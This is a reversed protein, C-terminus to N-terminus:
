SKVSKVHKKLKKIAWDYHSATASVCYSGLTTTGTWSFFKKTFLEENSFTEITKMVVEHSEKLMKQATDLSTKQHKEWFEDNMGAITQFTYPAPLFSQTVGNQNSEIWTLLLQDWEYLHAFADRINKDRTWHVQTQKQIFESDFNFTAQKVDDPMSDILDWLKEFQENASTILDTKTAARAM